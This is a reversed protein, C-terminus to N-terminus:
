GASRHDSVTKWGQIKIVEMRIRDSRPWEMLETGMEEHAEKTVRATHPSAGDQMLITNGEVVVM